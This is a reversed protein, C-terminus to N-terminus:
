YVTFNLSVTDSRGDDNQAYLKAVYPFRKVRAGDVKYDWTFDIGGPEMQVGDALSFVHNGYCDYIDCYVAAKDSLAANFVISDDDETCYANSLTPASPQEAFTFNATISDSVSGSAYSATVNFTYDGDPLANGNDDKGNWSLYKNCLYYKTNDSTVGEFAEAAIKDSLKRVVEGDSNTINCTITAASIIKNKIGCSVLVDFEDGSSLVAGEDCSLTITPTVAKTTVSVSSVPSYKQVSTYARYVYIGTSFNKLPLTVTKSKGAKITYNKAAIKKVGLVSPNKEYPFMSMLEINRSTSTGSSYIALTVTAKKKAKMTVSVSGGEYDIKVPNLTVVPATGTKSTYAAIPTYDNQPYVCCSTTPQSKYVFNYLENLSVVGNGNADAAFEKYSSDFIDIGIGYAINASFIGRSSSQLSTQETRSACLVKFRSNTLASSRSRVSSFESCFDSAFDSDSQVSRGILGGSNCADIILIVTGKIDSFSEALQDATVYEDLTLALVARGDVYAGHGSYTLVNVDDADASAFQKNIYSRIKSLSNANSNTIKLASKYGSQKMANRMALADNEPGPSLTLGSTEYKGIGINLSRYKTVGDGGSEAALASGPLFLALCAIVFLTSILRKM